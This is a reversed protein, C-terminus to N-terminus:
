YTGAVPSFTPNAVVITYATSAVGSTTYDPHMAIAKLTLSTTVAFPATYLTSFQSPTTGNTTYYITAGSISSLTVTVSGTYTGAAPAITPPALQGFNMHYLQNLISSTTWGTRFGAAKLTTTTGFTLPGSYLPSTATPNTGDTTYRISVGPTMTESLTVTVPNTFTGGLPSAGISFVTMTYVAANVQSFPLGTKWAKAKLTMSRDVTVGGPPVVPDTTTPDVGNTTYHIDAGPTADTIIVTQDTFYTNGAVNFSPTAVRWQYNVDSIAVPTLRNVTTGDGLQNFLNYGWTYVIGTSTVAIGHNDGAAHHTITGSINTKVPTRVTAGAGDGIQGPTGGGWRWEQGAQTRVSTFSLGAAMASALPVGAVQAMTSRNTSGNDGLQGSSDDGTAWVQGNSLLVVSHANGGAAAIAGTIGAARVPSSRPTTTTTDGLQGSGNAGWGWLEGGTRVTLTHNRGAAIATATGPSSILLPVNSQTIALNDNGLQGQDNRGWTWVSGDAGLAVSHSTGAAIAIVNPLDGVVVPSTRMTTSNDGLQGYFNYGWAWVTGSSDLALTHNAGAAVAVINVLTTVQVPTARQTQTGDGLQGTGNYGWTWVTGDPKVLVTHNAGAAVTEAAARSPLMGFVCTIGLACALHLRM